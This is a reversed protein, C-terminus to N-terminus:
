RGEKITELMLKEVDNAMMAYTRKLSANPTVAHMMTLQVYLNKMRNGDCVVKVQREWMRREKKDEALM